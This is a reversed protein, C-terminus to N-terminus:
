KQSTPIQPIQVSDILSLHNVVVLATPPYPEVENFNGTEMAAKFRGTDAIWAAKTIVLGDPHISVLEGTLYHTVTRFFYKGGIVFASNAPTSCPTPQALDAGTGQRFCAVMAAIQQAEGITLKSIDLTM